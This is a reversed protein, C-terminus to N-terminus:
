SKMTQNVLGVDDCVLIHFTKAGVKRSCHLLPTRVERAAIEYPVVNSEAVEVVVVPYVVRGDCVQAATTSNEM